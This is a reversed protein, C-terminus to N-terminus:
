KGTKTKAVPKPEPVNVVPVNKPAEGEVTGAPAVDPLTPLGLATLHTNIVAVSLKEHYKLNGYSVAVCLVHARVSSMVPSLKLSIQGMEAKPISWKVQLAEGKANRAFAMQNVADAITSASYPLRTHSYIPVLKDTKNYTQGIELSLSVGISSSGSLIAKYTNNM